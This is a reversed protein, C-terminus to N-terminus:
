GVCDDVAEDAPVAVNREPSRRLQSVHEAHLQPGLPVSSFVPAGHRADRPARVSLSRDLENAGVALPATDSEALQRLARGLG